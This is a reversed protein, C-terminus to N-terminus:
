EVLLERSLRIAAVLDLTDSLAREMEHLPLLSVELVEARTSRVTRRIYVKHGSISREGPSVVREETTGAAIAQGIEVIANRLLEVTDATIAARPEFADSFAQCLADVHCRSAEPMNPVVTTELHTRMTRALGLAPRMTDLLQKTIEHSMTM